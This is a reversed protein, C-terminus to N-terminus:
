ASQADVHVSSWDKRHLADTSILYYLAGADALELSITPDDHVALLLQWQYTDSDPYATPDQQIVTPHGLIQHSSRHSSHEDRIAAARELADNYAHRDNHDM